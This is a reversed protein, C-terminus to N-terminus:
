RMIKLEFVISSILKSVEARSLYEEAKRTFVKHNDALMRRRSEINTSIKYQTHGDKGGLHVIFGFELLIEFMEMSAKRDKGLIGVTQALTFQKPLLKKFRLAEVQLQDSTTKLKTKDVHM